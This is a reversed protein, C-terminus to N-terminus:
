VKTNEGKKMYFDFRRHLFDGVAQKAFFAGQKLEPFTKLLDKSSLKKAQKVNM